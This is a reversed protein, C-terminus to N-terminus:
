TAEPAKWDQPPVLPIGRLRMLAETLQLENAVGQAGIIELLQAVQEPEDSQGWLVNSNHWLWRHNRELQSWLAKDKETTATRRLILLGIRQSLLSDSKQALVKAVHLCDAGRSPISSLAPEKCANTLNQFAPASLAAKIAFAQVAAREDDSPHRSWGPGTSEAVTMPLRLFVRHMLQLHRYGYSDYRVAGRSGALTEEISADSYLMPALNGADVDQWRDAILERRPGADRPGFAQTAVALVLPDGSELVQARLVRLRDLSRGHGNNAAASAHGAARSAEHSWLVIGLLQAALLRERPNASAELADAVRLYYQHEEPPTWPDENASVSGQCTMLMAVLVMAVTKM